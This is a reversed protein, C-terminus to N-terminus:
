NDENSREYNKGLIFLDSVNVKNDANIDCNPNWGLKNPDSGYAQSLDCLDSANVNGDGNVDGLIKADPGIYSSDVVACDFLLEMAEPPVNLSMGFQAREINGHADTKRNTISLTQVGDVYLTYEGSSAHVVTKLEVSYWKATDLTFTTATETYTPVADDHYYMRWKYDTTAKALCVYSLWDLTTTSLRIVPQTYTPTEVPNTFRFRGRAFITTTATFSHGCYAFQTNTSDVNCKASYTGHHTSSSIITFTDGTGSANGLNWNTVDGSEFGDSFITLSAPIQESAGAASSLIGTLLLTFIIGSTTKREM